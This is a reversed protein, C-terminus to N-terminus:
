HNSHSLSRKDDDDSESSIPNPYHNNIINPDSYHCSSSESGTSQEKPPYVSEINRPKTQEREAHYPRQQQQKYDYDDNDAIKTKLAKIKKEWKLMKSIKLSISTMYNNNEKLELMVKLIQRSINPDDNNEAREMVMKYIKIHLTRDDSQKFLPHRLIYILDDERLILDGM